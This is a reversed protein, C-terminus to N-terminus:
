VEKRMVTIVDAESSSDSRWQKMLNIDTNCITTEKLDISFFFSREWYVHLFFILDFFVVCVTRLAPCIIRDSHSWQTFVSLDHTCIVSYIKHTQQVVFFRNCVSQLRFRDTAAKQENIEKKILHTDLSCTAEDYISKIEIKIRIEKNIRNLCSSKEIWNIMAAAAATMTTMITTTKTKMMKETWWWRWKIEDTTVAATHRATCQKNQATRRKLNEMEYIKERRQKKSRKMIESRKSRFLLKWNQRAPDANLVYILKEMQKSWIRKDKRMMVWSEWNHNSGWQNKM